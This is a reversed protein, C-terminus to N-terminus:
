RPATAAMGSMWGGGGLKRLKRAGHKMVTPGLSVQGDGAMVTKDDKRVALITTARVKWDDSRERTPM